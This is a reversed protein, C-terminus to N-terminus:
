PIDEGYNDIMYFVLPLATRYVLKPAVTKKDVAYKMQEVASALRFLEAKWNIIGDPYTKGIWEEMEMTTISLDNM